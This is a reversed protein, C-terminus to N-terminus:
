LTAAIEELEYAEIVDNAKIDPTNDLSIGCEFGQAVEKVDEKIRRISAIKGEWKVAGDRVLRANAGRKVSGDIVMCGAVIGVKTINFVQRIEAKGLAKEVFVPKLQGLMLQKLDDVAEYIVNYFKLAVKADDAAAQAKGAPRVNFGIVVANSASALQVDTETIAGVAGHIVRVQVKETSLATLAQRLGEVAGQADAKIVVGVTAAGDKQLARAIADLGRTLDIQPKNVKEIAKLEESVEQAKRLDSAVYLKDGANPVDSLGLIEIPTSPGAKDLPKGRDDFMARIRGYASGVLVVDGNRVTGEQVLVRAVAGRGKDLKAEFVTGVGPKKPDAKLDLIETQLALTELMEDLGQRAKASVKSVLTEGGFEEAIVEYQMLQQLVKDPNADGKDMKNLAVILPVKAAKAHNIAEVTTPMVGDDAAVVLVAVDTLKAGRARLATFAEHGPTDFFVVTGRKTNVRYARVEQTIGGAEGEAVRSGLIADLLTTKGHDVHGMVTVVPARPMLETKGSDAPLAKKIIDDINLAVDEVTFGFESALFKATDSDLTSNINKGTEGAQILKILVDTARISMRRALEQLSIQAEIKIVKKHQAMETQPTQLGRGLGGMRGQNQGWPRGGQGQYGPRGMSGGMGPGGPRQPTGRGPVPRGVQNRDVNVITPRGRPPMGPGGPGSTPGMSPRGPGGMPPGMSPRGQPRTNTEEYVITKKIPDWRAIGTRKEGPPGPPVSPRPPPNSPRSEERPAEAQRSENAPGRPPAAPQPRVEVRAVPPAKPIEVAVPEVKPAEVKVPEVKPAEVVPVEVKVPEVKPAEVVPAEARVPEAKPTEVVPAEVKPAEVKPAEVAAPEAKVPEAKPAEVAPEAKVPEPERAEVRPSEGRPAEASADHSAEARVPEPAPEERPAVRPAAVPRPPPAPPAPPEVRKLKRIGPAVEVEVFSAQRDKLIQSKIIEVSSGEVKSMKNKVDIGMARIKQLVTETDMKLDAAIEYVKVTSM